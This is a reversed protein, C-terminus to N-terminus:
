RPPDVVGRPVGVRDGADGVHTRGFIRPQAPLGASPQRPPQGHRDDAGRGGGEDVGSSQAAWMAAYPGRRDLLIGHSGREVIRGQDLVIIEDAEVVTSLRHAIILTTRGRVATALNRQIQQETTTDLSSTAEDLVILGSDKLVARALAVRQKEGGSLRLGREGVVTGWGEPLSALLTDLGAVAAAHEVDRATAGSRGFAINNFLTDNFLIADQPVIAIGARLAALPLDRTETAGFLIRGAEPEYLRFVLRVLTSKGSGSRGVVAVTRGAPVEFSVGNLVPRGPEYAFRVDELTLAPPRARSGGGVADPRIVDGPGQRSAGGDSSGAVAEDSPAGPLAEPPLGPAASAASLMRESPENLLGRLREVLGLSQVLELSAFGLREIPGTIQLAYANVLVFDGPTMSGAAVQRVAESLMLALAVLFICNSLLANRIRARAFASWDAEGRALAADIRAVAAREGGFLRVTEHNLLADTATGSAAADSRAAARHADRQRRYGLRLALGYALAFGLFIILFRLDYGQHILVMAITGAEILVPVVTFLLASLASRAGGLGDAVTRDLEGTRRTLHARHPLDLVHAYVDRTLARRVRRDVSSFLAILAVGSLRGLGRLAVYGAVAWAAVSFLGGALADVCVKLALPAMGQVVAGAGVLVAIQVIRLRHRRGLLGWVLRLFGHM